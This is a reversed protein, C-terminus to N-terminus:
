ALDSVAICGAAPIKGSLIAEISECVQRKANNQCDRNSHILKSYLMLNARHELEPLEEQAIDAAYAKVIGQDMAEDELIQLLCNVWEAWQHTDLTIIAEAADTVAVRVYTLNM